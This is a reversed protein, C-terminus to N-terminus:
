LVVILKILQFPCIILKLFGFCSYSHAKLRKLSKKLIIIVRAVIMATVVIVFVFFFFFANVDISELNNHHDAHDNAYAETENRFDPALAAVALVSKRQEIAEGSADEEGHGEDVHHRLACLDVQDPSSFFADLSGEREWVHHEENAVKQDQRDVTDSGLRVMSTM